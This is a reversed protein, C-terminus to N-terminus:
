FKLINKIETLDFKEDTNISYIYKKYIAIYSLNNDIAKNIKEVDRISWDYYAEKYKNSNLVDIKKLLSLEWIDVDDDRIIYPKPGHTWFLNLEIFLDLSKIYFDCNYPYREDRYVHVVNDCGYKDILYNYFLDEQKSKNGFSGNKKKTIYNKEKYEDTANYWNGYRSFMTNKIKDYWWLTKTPSDVGYREICTKKYKERIDNEKKYYNDKWYATQSINDVGWRENMVRRVNEYHLKKDKKINFKQLTKTILGKSCGYHEACEDQTKNQNIYLEYLDDKDLNYKM